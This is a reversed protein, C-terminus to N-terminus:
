KIKWIIRKRSPKLENAMKQLKAVIKIKEEFPLEALKKHYLKEKEFLKKIGKM